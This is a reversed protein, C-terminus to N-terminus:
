YREGVVARGIASSVKEVLAERNKPDDFVKRWADEVVKKLEVAVPSDPKAMEATMYERVCVEAAWRFADQLVSTTSGPRPKMLNGIADALLQDRREPGLAMLVHAQVIKDLESQELKVDAM